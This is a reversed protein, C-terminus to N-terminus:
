TGRIPDATARSDVVQRLNALGPVFRFTLSSRTVRLKAL